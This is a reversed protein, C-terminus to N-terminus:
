APVNVKSFENETLLHPPFIVQDVSQMCCIAHQNDVFCTKQSGEQKIRCPNPYVVLLKRTRTERKASLIMDHKFPTKLVFPLYMFRWLVIISGRYLTIYRANSIKQM